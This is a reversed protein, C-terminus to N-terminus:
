TMTRGCIAYFRGANAARENLSNFPVDALFIQGTYNESSIDIVDREKSQRSAASQELLSVNWCWYYLTKNEVVKEIFFVHHCYDDYLGM